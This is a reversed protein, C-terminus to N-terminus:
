PTKKVRCSKRVELWTFDQRLMKALFPDQDPLNAGRALRRHHTLRSFLHHKIKARPVSKRGYGNPQNSSWFTVEDATHGLHIVLHGRERGGIADTWWLKLFDGPEAHDFSTFNAGCGLDAFLKATGPGNANWRGFIEEGDKVGLTAFRVLTPSSLDLADQHRLREIVRLLVLYTAGSCFSAGASRLDQRIRGNRFTVSAALRDVAKQSAEYGGGEPMSQVAALIHQNLIPPKEAFVLSATLLLKLFPLFIRM